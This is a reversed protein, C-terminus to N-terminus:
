KLTTAMTEDAVAILRFDFAFRFDSDNSDNSQNNHTNNSMIILLIMLCHNYDDDDDDDDNADKLLLTEHSFAKLLIFALAFTM